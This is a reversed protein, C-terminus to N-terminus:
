GLRPPTLAIRVVRGAVDTLWLDGATGSTVTAADQGLIRDVRNTAPDIRMLKMGTVWPAGGELAISDVGDRGEKPGVPITVVVRNTAPDIRSVNTDYENHVWVADGAVIALPSSGVPIVASVTDTAPDIRTVTNDRRNALWASGAGFAVGSPGHPLGRFVHTVSNTAIDVRALADHEYDTVWIAGGGAAMLFPSIGLKVTSVVRHSAPDLRLLAQQDDRTVWVSGAAFVVASPLDCLRVSYSGDPASHISGPACGRSRLVATDGIRITARVRNHVMDIETLTGDGSNGVWASGPGIAVATADRGTDFIAVQAGSLAPVPPPAPPQKATGGTCGALVLALGVVAIRM